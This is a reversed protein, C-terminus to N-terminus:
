FLGRLQWGLYLGIVLAMMIWLDHVYWAKLERFLSGVVHLGLMKTVRSWRSMRSEIEGNFHSLVVGQAKKVWTVYAQDSKYMMAGDIKLHREFGIRRLRVDLEGTKHGEYSNIFVQGKTDKSLPSFHLRSLLQRVEEHQNM